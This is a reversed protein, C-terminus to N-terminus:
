RRREAWDFAWEGCTQRWRSVDALAPAGAHWRDKPTSPVPRPHAPDDGAHPRAPHPETVVHTTAPNRNAARRGGSGALHGRPRRRSRTATSRRFWPPRRGETPVQVGSRPLLGGSDALPPAEFM